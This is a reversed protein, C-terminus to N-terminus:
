GQARTRTRSLFFAAPARARALAARARTRPKGFHLAGECVTKWDSWHNRAVLAEQSPIRTGAGGTGSDEGQWSEACSSALRAGIYSATPRAGEASPVVFCARRDRRGRAGRRRADGRRGRSIKAVPLGNAPGEDQLRVSTVLLCSRVQGYRKEISGWLFGHQLLFACDALVSM